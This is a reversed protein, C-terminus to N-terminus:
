SQFDSGRNPRMDQEADREVKLRNVVRKVGEVQLALDTALEKSDNSIVTGTLYATRGRVVTEVDLLGEQGHAQILSQLQREAQVERYNRQVEHVNDTARAGASESNGQAAFSTPMALTLMLTGVAAAFAAHKSKGTSKM